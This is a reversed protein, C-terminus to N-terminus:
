KIKKLEKLRIDLDVSTRYLNWFVNQLWAAWEPDSIEYAITIDHDIEGKRYDDVKEERRFRAFKGDIVIGRLPHYRHRIEIQGPYKQILFQIKKLNRLTALNVRCLIRINVKRELLKELTDYSHKIFSLNGSFILVQENAKQLFKGVADEELVETKKNSDKVFQFIELFDFDDKKRSTKIQHYLDDKVDDASLSDQNPIFVIKLAGQTNPRFVKMYLRGTQSQIQKVYSEATIWSRSIHNAIDQITRPEQKVFQVIKETEENTLM